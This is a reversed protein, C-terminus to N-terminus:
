SRPVSTRPNTVIPPANTASMARITIKRAIRYPPCTAFTRTEFLLSSRRWKVACGNARSPRSSITAGDLTGSITVANRDSAVKFKRIASVVDTVHDPSNRMMRLVAYIRAPKIVLQDPRPAIAGNGAIPM